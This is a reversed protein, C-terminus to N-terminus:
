PLTHYRSPLWSRWLLLDWSYTYFFIWELVNYKEMSCKGNVVTSEKKLILGKVWCGYGMWGATVVAMEPLFWNWLYHDYVQWKLLSFIYFLSKSITVKVSSLLNCLTWIREDHIELCMEERNIIYNRVNLHHLFFFINNSQIYKSKVCFPKLIKYMCYFWSYM